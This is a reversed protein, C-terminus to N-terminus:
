IKGVSNCIIIIHYALRCNSHAYFRKFAFSMLIIAFHLLIVFEHLPLTLSLSLSPPLAVPLSCEPPQPSSRVSM